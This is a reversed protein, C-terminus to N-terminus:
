GEGQPYVIRETAYSQSKQGEGSGFPAIIVQHITVERLTAASASMAM